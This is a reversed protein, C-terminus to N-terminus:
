VIPNFIFVVLPTLSAFLLTLGLALLTWVPSRHRGQSEKSYNYFRVFLRIIFYLWIIAMIILAVGLTVATIQLTNIRSNLLDKLVPWVVVGLSMTLISTIVVGIAASRFRSREYLFLDSDLHDGLRMEMGTNYCVGLYFYPVSKRVM